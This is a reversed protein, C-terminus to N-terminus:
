SVYKAEIGDSSLVIEIGLGADQTQYVAVNQQKLTELVRMAPTHEREATSTCIVAISPKATAILQPSTADSDGHHGLKIVDCRLDAGSDLLREESDLLADGMLLARGYDSEIMLVLSNNNEDNKDRKLPALARVSVGDAMQMRDGAEIWQVAQGRQAAAREAPHLKESQAYLASAYWTRVPMESQALSLLSGAHDSDTHTLFVGELEMVGLQQFVRELLTWDEEDGADILYHKEGASLVIADAKGVNIFFLRLAAGNKRDCGAGCLLLMALLCFAMCKKM